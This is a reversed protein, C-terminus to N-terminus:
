VSDGASVRLELFRRPTFIEIGEFTGLTLLDDDGTVIATAEGALATALVRDDSPDRSIPSELPQAEVWTAHRRYLQLFPLEDPVLGFKEGLVTVLEDWLESSLIADHLPLHIEILEHCLGRAVLGAVIVNTDFVIRM